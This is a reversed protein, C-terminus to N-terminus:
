FLKAASNRKPNTTCRGEGCISIVVDRCDDSCYTKRRPAGGYNVFLPKGHKNEFVSECVSCVTTKVAREKPKRTIVIHTQAYEISVAQEGILKASNGIAKKSLAKFVQAAEQQPTLGAQIQIEIKKM